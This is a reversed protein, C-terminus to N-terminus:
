LTVKEKDLRDILFLVLVTSIVVGISSYAVVIWNIIQGDIINKAINGAIVFILVGGGVALYLLIQMIKPHTFRLVSWSSLGDYVMPLLPAIVLIIVWAPASIILLPNLGKLINWILILIVIIIIVMPYSLLFISIMKGTWLIRLSIPTTLISEFKHTLKEDGFKEQIFPLSFLLMGLSPITIFSFEMILKQAPGSIAMASIFGLALFPFINVLTNFLYNRGGSVEKIEKLIVAKLQSNM